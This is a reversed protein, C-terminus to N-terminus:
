PAQSPSPAATQSPATDGPAPGSVSTEQADTSTDGDPPTLLIPPATETTPAEKLEAERESQCIRSVRWDREVREIGFVRVVEGSPGGTTKVSVISDASNVRLVAGVSLLQEAAQKRATCAGCAAKEQKVFDAAAGVSLKSATEFDGSGLAQAFEVGVNKPSRTREELSVARPTLSEGPVHYNCAARGAAWFILTAVCIVSLMVLDPISPANIKVEDLTTVAAGGEKKAGDKKAAEKHAGSTKKAQAPPRDGTAGVTSEPKSSSADRSM